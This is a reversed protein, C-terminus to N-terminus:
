PKSTNKQIWSFDEQLYGDECELKIIQKHKFQIAGGPSNFMPASIGKKVYCKVNVDKSVIYEHYEITDKIYPLSLLEYSTGKITTFRGNNTGYRCIITGKPLLYDVVYEDSGDIPRYKKDFGDSDCKDTEEGWKIHPVNEKDVEGYDSNILRIMVNTLDKGLYNVM